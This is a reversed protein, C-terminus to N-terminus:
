TTTPASGPDFYSLAFSRPTVTRLSASNSFNTPALYASRRLNDSHHLAIVLAVLAIILLILSVGLLKWFSWRLIPVSPSYALQSSGLLVLIYHDGKRLERVAEDWAEGASTNEHKLRKNAHRMLKGIKLEYGDSDYEAEFLDNLAIPDEPCDGSETFYMMRRELDSFPVRELAAQEATQQVLFDKAERVNM